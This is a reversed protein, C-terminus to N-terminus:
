CPDDVCIMLLKVTCNPISISKESM